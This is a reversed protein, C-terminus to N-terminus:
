DKNLNQDALVNKLMKLSSPHGAKKRSLFYRSPQYLQEIPYLTFLDKYKDQIFFANNGGIDCCLLTYNNKNFLENWAGLSVGMYDDGAWVFSPDYKVKVDTTYGWKANYEVCVAKPFFGATFVNEMIHFDNGDIDLSFFDIETSNFYKITETFLSTTNDSNVFCCKILLQPFKDAGLFSTAYNIFDKNGDIWMGKWKNLLLFHTNNEIGKGCGIELFIKNVPKIKEFIAQIIGDEEGSSYCKYGKLLPNDPMTGSIKEKLKEISGDLVADHTTNVKQLVPEYFFGRLRGLLKYFWKRM